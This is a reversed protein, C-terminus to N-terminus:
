FCWSAFHFANSHLLPGWSLRLPLSRPVSCLAPLERSLDPSRPCGLRAPWTVRQDNERCDTISWLAPGAFAPVEVSQRPKLSAFCTFCGPLSFCLKWSGSVNVQLSWASRGAWGQGERPCLDPDLPSPLPHSPAGSLVEDM